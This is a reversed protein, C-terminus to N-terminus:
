QVILAILTGAPVDDDSADVLIRLTGSAPSEIELQTKESELVVLPAGQAVNGGDPVLWELVVVQEALGSHAIRVEVGDDSTAM